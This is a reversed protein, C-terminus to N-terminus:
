WGSMVPPHINAPWPCHALSIDAARPTFAPARTDQRMALASFAKEAEGRRFDGGGYAPHMPLSRYAISLLGPTASTPLSRIVGAPSSCDSASFGSQHSHTM